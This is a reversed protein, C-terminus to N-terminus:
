HWEYLELNRNFKVTLFSGVIYVLVCVWVCVRVCQCITIRWENKKWKDRRENQMKTQLIEIWRYWNQYVTHGMEVFNCGRGGENSALSYIQHWDYTYIYLCFYLECKGRVSTTFNSRFTTEIIKNHSKVNNQKFNLVSIQICKDSKVNLYITNVDNNLRHKVKLHEMQYYEINNNTVIVVIFVIDIVISVNVSCTDFSMCKIRNTFSCQRFTNVWENRCPTYHLLLFSFKYMQLSYTSCPFQNLLYCFFIFLLVPIHFCSFCFTFVYSANSEDCLSTVIYM